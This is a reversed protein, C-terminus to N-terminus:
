ENIGLATTAVIKPRMLKNDIDVLSKAYDEPTLTFRHLSPLVQM